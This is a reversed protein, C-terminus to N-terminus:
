QEKADQIASKNIVNQAVQSALQNFKMNQNGDDLNEAFEDEVASVNIGAAQPQLNEGDEKKEKALLIM